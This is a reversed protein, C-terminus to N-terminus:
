RRLFHHVSTGQFIRSISPHLYAPILIARSKAVNNTMQVDGMICKKAGGEGEGGGFFFSLFSSLLMTNLKEQTSQLMWSLNFYFTICFNKQPPSQPPCVLHIISIHLHHIHCIGIEFFTAKTTSWQDYPMPCKPIRIDSCHNAEAVVLCCSRLACHLSDDVNRRSKKLAQRLSCM